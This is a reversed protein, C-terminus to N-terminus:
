RARSSDIYGLALGIVLGGAHAWNAIGGLVGAFAAVFWVMMIVLITPHLFFGSTPDLKGRLWVYGLLGYVVGSMGGFRPNGTIYFEALNSGVAMALVMFGLYRTGMRVEVMSGLDKLWLMNFLIHIIGGHIFIPTILRWVQGHRIEPLSADPPMTGTIFLLSRWAVGGSAREFVYYAVSVVVLIFTLRGMGFATAPRFLTRRGKVKKEWRAQEKEKSARVEAASRANEQFEPDQPNTSFKQLLNKATELKDEDVVWIGWGTPPDEEVTNEIGSVLLYDGFLRAGPETTLHGILRM